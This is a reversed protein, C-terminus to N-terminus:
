DAFLNLQQASNNARPAAAKRGTQKVRLRTSSRISKVSPNKFHWHQLAQNNHFWWFVYFSMAAILVRCLLEVEYFTIYLNTGPVQGLFILNNLM